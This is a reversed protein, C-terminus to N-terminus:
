KKNSRPCCHACGDANPNVKKAAAVALYPYAFNGLEQQTEKKCYSCTSKHVEGSRKNLYFKMRKGGKKKNWPYELLSKDKAVVFFTM